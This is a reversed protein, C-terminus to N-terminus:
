DLKSSLVRGSSGDVRVEYKRGDAGQVDFQYVPLGKEYGMEVRTVSGPVVSLATAAATDPTVAIAPGGDPGQVLFGNRGLKPNSLLYVPQLKLKVILEKAEATPLRRGMVEVTDAPEPAGVPGFLQGSAYAFGAVDDGKYPRNPRPEPLYLKGWITGPPLTKVLAKIQIEVNAATTAIKLPPVSVKLTSDTLVAFGSERSMRSVVDAVPKTGPASQRAPRTADSPSSLLCGALTAMLASAKWGLARCQRAIAM